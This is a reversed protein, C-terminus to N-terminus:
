GIELHQTRWQMSSIGALLVLFLNRSFPSAKSGPTKISGRQNYNCQISVLHKYAVSKSSDGCITNRRRSPTAYTLPLLM